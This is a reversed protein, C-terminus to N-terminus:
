PAAEGASPHCSFCGFGERTEPDYPAGDVAARAAPVVHNFMFRVMRPHEEVMRRQEETGSPHLPMLEPNPMAFAREHMDAGHCTGCGFDAYREPDYEQFLARFYPLVAEAM